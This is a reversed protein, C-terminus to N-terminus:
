SHAPRPSVTTGRPLINLQVVCAHNRAIFGSNNTDDEALINYKIHKHYEARNYFNLSAKALWEENQTSTFICIFIFFNSSSSSGTGSHYLRTMEMVGKLSMQDNDQHSTTTQFVDASVPYKSLVSANKINSNHYTQFFDKM